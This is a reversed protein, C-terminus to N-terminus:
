MAKTDFFLEVKKIQDHKITLLSATRLYGIPEPFITDIVLMVNSGKQFKKRISLSRFAQTFGRVAQLVASKEKLETLPSIFVIDPHILQEITEFNKNNMATYYMEAIALNKESM